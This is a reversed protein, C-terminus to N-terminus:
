IENVPWSPKKKSLVEHIGIAPHVSMRIFAEKTHAATHPTLIVNELGLLPNDKSPIEGEFVDVAAGAIKNEKLVSALAETDVVEGRATNILFAEKKMLELERKGIMYKTASTLPVHLSVFDSAKLVYDLDDTYKINESNIELNLNRKYEIIKMGFGYVAKKAVLEGIAGAGIIGLTKGEVDMGLRNRIQFNGKRIEKDYLFFQKSLAIILGITYEAVSNKNSEKSNTVQIGHKTAAELNINDTGVGFKSIVKLKNGSRIIKETINAMRVLIADCDKVEEILNKESIDSALKIEYGFKRLYEKGEDDIDETILVKYSM